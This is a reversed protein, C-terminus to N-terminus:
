MVNVIGIKDERRGCPLPNPNSLKVSKEISRLIQNVHEYFVHYIFPSRQRYLNETSNCCRKI